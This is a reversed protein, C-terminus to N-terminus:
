LSIEGCLSRSFYQKVEDPNRTQGLVWMLKTVAAESTMDFAEIAGKEKLRRGTEYKSFDSKEYLCQSTIVVPIGKLILQDLASIHDRHLFHLGGIGFAEIVLGHYDLKLLSDFFAPNLGPILKVLLVNSDLKEYLPCHLSDPYHVLAKEHIVLGDGSLEAVYPANISQFADLDTTRTKVARTGLIVKNHFALFVGAKGSSAMALALALNGPADSLPAEAPLQSGTLVVPRDLLPLMFSLMSATYAMTDTGHTIVVGDYFPLSRHLARAIHQWDEPQINSSDLQLIDRTDLDYATSVQALTNLIGEGSLAPSLGKEGERSSITGGTALLLLKPRM